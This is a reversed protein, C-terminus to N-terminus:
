ESTNIICRVRIVDGDRSPPDFLLANVVNWINSNLQRKLVHFKAEDIVVSCCLGIRIQPSGFFVDNVKAPHMDARWMLIDNSAVSPPDQMLLRHIGFLPKGIPLM